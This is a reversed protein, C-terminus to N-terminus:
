LLPFHCASLIDPKHPILQPVENSCREKAYVCRTHFVCGSPPNVPSPIDGKLLIRKKKIGPDAVPIASLLAETYPHTYGKYLKDTPAIEMVKGLYMVVVRDTIYRVVRLDHTIFLYTINFGKQIEKLLAMIQAQISVDLASLPEDAVVFKPKLAIARAIGIRQRQGGSFEHPYKNISNAPLGVVDLLEKVREQRERGRVIRHITFAEGIIEEVTMRPNLSAYPDQFIMQMDRRLRRLEEGKMALIDRGEFEIRGSTPETLRLITRGLTTKGSGSEGVLGLTEGRNIHFSVGDVAHLIAKRRDFLGGKVPFYKKLNEIKLLESM